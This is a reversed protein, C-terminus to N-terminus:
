FHYRILVKLQNRFNDDLTFANDRYTYRLILSLNNDFAYTFDAEGDYGREGSEWFYIHVWQSVSFNDTFAFENAIVISEASTYVNDNFDLFDLRLRNHLVSLKTNYKDAWKFNYGLGVGIQSLLYDLKTDDISITDRELYTNTETFFNNSSFLHIWNARLRQKDTDRVGDKLKLDSRANFNINNSSRRWKATLDVNFKLEDNNKGKDYELGGGISWADPRLVHLILTEESNVGSIENIDVSRSTDQANAQPTLATFQAEANTFQIEGFRTSKFIGGTESLSMLEGVLTDGNNFTLHGEGLTNAISQKTENNSALCHQSLMLAFLMAIPKM